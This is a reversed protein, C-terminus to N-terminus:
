KGSKNQRDVGVPLAIRKLRPHNDTRIRHYTSKQRSPTITAVSPKSGLAWFRAPEFGAGPVKQENFLNLLSLLMHVRFPIGDIYGCYTILLSIMTKPSYALQCLSYNSLSSSPLEFRSPGVVYSSLGPIPLTPRLGARTLEIRM